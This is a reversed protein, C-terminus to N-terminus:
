RAVSTEKQEMYRAVVREVTNVIAQTQAEAEINVVDGIDKVGLVTM